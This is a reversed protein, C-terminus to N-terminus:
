LLRWLLAVAGWALIALVAWVLLSWKLSFPRAGASPEEVQSKTEPEERIVRLAARREM